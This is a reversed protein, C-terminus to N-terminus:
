SFQAFPPSKRKPTILGTRGRQRYADKCIRALDPDDKYKGALALQAQKRSQLAPVSTGLWQQLAAKLFRWQGGILRGPLQQSNVLNVVADERVRSYAAAEALTLVDSAPGNPAPTASLRPLAVPKKMGPM